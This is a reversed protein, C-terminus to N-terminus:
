DAARQLRAKEWERYTQYEVIGEGRVRRASPMMGDVIYIFGCRCNIDEAAVGFAGPYLATAGSPSQFKEDMGVVQGDLSAHTDRTRDDLTARWMKRMDIGQERGRDGALWRGENQVRHAETQVVRISKVADGEFTERLRRAIPAYGEGRILGQTIEQKVRWIIEGRRLELRENLTLGSIPMQVAAEIVRPNLLSWSTVAGLQRAATDIVYGTRYYSEGFLDGLDRRTINTVRIGLRRLEANIEKELAVLRNYKAADAYSLKGAKEYKRAFDALLAQVERSSRAYVRVLERKTSKEMAALARDAKLFETETDM